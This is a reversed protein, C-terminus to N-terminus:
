EAVTCTPMGAPSGLTYAGGSPCKRTQKLYPLVDNWTPIANTDKHNAMAWEQTARDIRGLNNICLNLPSTRPRRELSWWAASVYLAIAAVAFTIVAAIREDKRRVSQIEAVRTGCIYCKHLCKSQVKCM